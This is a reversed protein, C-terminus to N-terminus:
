LMTPAPRVSPDGSAPLMNFGMSARPSNCQMPAVVRFSCRCYMSFSAASSRRKWGTITSAGDTSSVM